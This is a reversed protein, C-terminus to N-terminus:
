SWDVKPEDSWSRADPPLPGRRHLMEAEERSYVGNDKGAHCDCCRYVDGYPHTAPGGCEHCTKGYPFPGMM